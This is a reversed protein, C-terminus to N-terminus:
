DQLPTKGKRLCCPHSSHFAPLEFAAASKGCDEVRWEGAGGGGLRVPGKPIPQQSTCKGCRKHDVGGGGTM